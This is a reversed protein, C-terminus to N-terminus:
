LSPNAILLYIWNLAFLAIIAGRVFKRESPTLEAIRVRPARMVIVALAYLNFISFACYFLFALPNWQLAVLFHAHFFAMASRTAGCTLCPRGTLAHFLCIPWPLKLALWTAALALGGSSVSLWLLEHNTEGPALPRRVIQVLEYTLPSAFGCARIGGYVFSSDPGGCCIIVPLFVALVARGTDTEHARALGICNVVLGWVAAIVGGCVPILQLVGTSGQTFALVRFTTEFPQNAGGVIMLCLHIIRPGSSCALSSPSRFCPYHIRDLRNGHRGHRRFRKPPEAFLGLSQLVLSFLFSVIAGVSAGVVAYILPEGFGGERKMATFAEAPRTLVM